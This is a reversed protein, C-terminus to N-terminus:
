KAEDILHLGMERFWQGVEGSSFGADLFMVMCDASITNSRCNKSATKFDPRQKRGDAMAELDNLTTVAMKHLQKLVQDRTMPKVAKTEKTKTAQKSCCAIIENRRDIVTQRSLATPEAAWRVVEDRDFGARFMLAICAESVVRTDCNKDAITWDMPAAEFWDFETMRTRALSQAEFLKSKAKQQAQLEENRNAEAGAEAAEKEEKAKAAKIENEKMQQEWVARRADNRLREQRLIESHPVGADQLEEICTQNLLSKACAPSNFFSEPDFAFRRELENLRNIDDIDEQTVGFWQKEGRHHFTADEIEKQTFVHNTFQRVKSYLPSSPFEHSLRSGLPIPRIKQKQREAIVAQMVEEPDVRGRLEVHIVLSGGDFRTSVQKEVVTIVGATYSRIEDKVIALGKAVTMSDVYTAVQELVDRKAAETALRVAEQKTEYDGMRYEGVGSVTQMAALIPSAAGVVILVLAIAAYHPTKM